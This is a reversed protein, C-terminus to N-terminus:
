HVRVVHVLIVSEKVNTIEVASPEEVNRNVSGIHLLVLDFYTRNVVSVARSVQKPALHAYEQTVYKLVHMDGVDWHTVVNQDVHGHRTAVASCDQHNTVVSANLRLWRPVHLVHDQIVCCCVATGVSHNCPREVHRGVHIHYWGPTFHHTKQTVVFVAIDRLLTMRNMIM